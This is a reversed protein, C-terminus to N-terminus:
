KVEMVKKAAADYGDRWGTAYAMFRLNRVVAADDMNEIDIMHTVTEDCYKNAAVSEPNKILEDM